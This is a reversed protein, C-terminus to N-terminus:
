HEKRAITYTDELKNIGHYFTMCVMMCIIFMIPIFMSEGFKSIIYDQLKVAFSIM